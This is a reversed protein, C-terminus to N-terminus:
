SVEQRTMLYKQIYETIDKINRDIMERFEDPIQQERITRYYNLAKTIQKRRIFRQAKVLMPKYKYYAYELINHDKSLAFVHPIKSFDYTLTLFPTDEQDPTKLELVGRIEQVPPKEEEFDDTDEDSEEDFPELGEPEELVGTSEPNSAPSEEAQSADETGGAERTGSETEASESAGEQTGAGGESSAGSPPESMGPESPPEEAAGAPTSEDAESSKKGTSEKESEDSVKPKASEPGGGGSAEEEGAEGSGGSPKEGQIINIEKEAKIEIDRGQFIAKSIELLGNALSELSGDDTRQQKKQSLGTLDAGFPLAGPQQPESTGPPTTPQPAVSVPPISGVLQIM